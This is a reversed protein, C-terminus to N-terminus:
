RSGTTSNNILPQIQYILKQYPLAPACAIYAIDRPELIFLYLIM